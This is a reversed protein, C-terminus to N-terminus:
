GASSFNNLRTSEVLLPTGSRTKIRNDEFLNFKEEDSSRRTSERLLPTRGPSTKSGTTKLSVSNEEDSSTSHFEVMLSRRAPSALKAEFRSEATDIHSQSNQYKRLPGPRSM